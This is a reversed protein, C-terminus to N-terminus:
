CPCFYTSCSTPSRPPLSPPSPPPAAAGGSPKGEEGGDAEPEPRRPRRPAAAPRGDRVPLLGAAAGPHVGGHDGAAALFFVVFGSNSSSFIEPPRFSQLLSSPRGRQHDGPEQRHVWPRIKHARRADGGALVPPPQTLSQDGMFWFSYLLFLFFFFIIM